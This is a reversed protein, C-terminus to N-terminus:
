CLRYITQIIALLTSVATQFSICSNAVFVLCRTDRQKLYHHRYVSRVQASPQLDDLTNHQKECIVRDKRTKLANSFARRDAPIISYFSEFSMQIPEIFCKYYRYIKLRNSFSEDFGNLFKFSTLRAEQQGIKTRGQAM